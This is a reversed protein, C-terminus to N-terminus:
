NIGFLVLNNLGFLDYHGELNLRRGPNRKGLIPKITISKRALTNV